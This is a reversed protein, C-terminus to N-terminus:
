QVNNRIKRSRILIIGSVISLVIGVIVGAKGAGTGFGGSTAALHLLNLVLAVSALVIAVVMTRKDDPRKKARRSIAISILALAVGVLARARGPTLGRVSTTSTEGQAFATVFLAMLFVLLIFPLYRKM